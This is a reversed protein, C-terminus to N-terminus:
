QPLILFFVVEVAVEGNADLAAITLFHPGTDIDEPVPSSAISNPPQSGKQKKQTVTAIEGDSPLGFVFFSVQTVDSPVEAEFQAPVNGSAYDENFGPEIPTIEIKSSYPEIFAEGAIIRFAVADGDFTGENTVQGNLTVVGLADGGGSMLVRTDTEPPQGSSYWRGWLKSLEPLFDREFAEVSGYYEQSVQSMMAWAGEPDGLSLAKVWDLVRGRVISPDVGEETEETPSEQPTPHDGSTSAPLPVPVPQTAFFGRAAVAGGGVLLVSAAAVMAARYLRQRKARSITENWNLASRPMGRDASSLQERLRDDFSM